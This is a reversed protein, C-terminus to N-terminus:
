LTGEEIEEMRQRFRERGDNELDIWKWGMQEALLYCQTILDALEIRANATYALSGATNGMSAKHEAYVLSKSLSGLEYCMVNITRETSDPKAEYPMLDKLSM